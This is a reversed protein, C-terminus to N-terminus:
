ARLVSLRNHRRVIMTYADFNNYPIKEDHLHERKYCLNQRLVAEM